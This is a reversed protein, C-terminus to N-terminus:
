NDRTKNNLIYTLSILNMHNSQNSSCAGPDSSRPDVYMGAKDFVGQATELGKFAAILVSKIDDTQYTCPLLKVWSPDKPVTIGLFIIQVLM